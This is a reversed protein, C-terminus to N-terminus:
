FLNYSLIKATPGLMCLILRNEAYQLVAEQIEEIRSYANHSPCIIRKISNAGDFLIM